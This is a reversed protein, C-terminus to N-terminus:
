RLWSWLDLQYFSLLQSRLEHSVHTLHTTVNIIKKQRSLYWVSLFVLLIILKRQAQTDLGAQRHPDFNSIKVIEIYYPSTSLYSISPSCTTPLQFFSSLCILRWEVYLCQQWGNRGTIRSLVLVQLYFPSWQPRGGGVVERNLLM